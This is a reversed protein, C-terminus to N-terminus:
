ELKIEWIDNLNNLPAVYGASLFLKNEFSTVKHFFRSSYSTPSQTAMFWTNGDSTYWIENDTDTELNAQGGFLWMKNEYIVSASIRRPAFAADETVVDWDIGNSSSWISNTNGEPGVGGIVWMKNNFVLCENLISGELTYNNTALEWQVGNSSFWIDNVFSNWDSGNIVWIKNDFVVSSHLRRPAFEASDTELVWDLGNTSSWVDNAPVLENNENETMGGIVWLKNDFVVSTHDSRRGFPANDIVLSWNIGDSSSWVDKNFSGGIVWMKDNFTVMTHAHRSTFTANETIQTVSLSLSRTTFSSTSSERINQNEDIAIVKWYYRTDVSLENSISFTTLDFNEAIINSPDPNTDLVFQYSVLDGEPDTAIEWNFSPLLNINEANDVVDILSFLNPSMNEETVSDNTIIQSDNQSSTCGSIIIFFLFRFIKM